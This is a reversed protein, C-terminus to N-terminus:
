RTGLWTSCTLSCAPTPEWARPELGRPKTARPSTLETARLPPRQWSHQVYGAIADLGRSKGLRRPLTRPGSLKRHTLASAGDNQDCSNSLRRLRRGGRPPAITLSVSQGIDAGSCVPLHCDSTM